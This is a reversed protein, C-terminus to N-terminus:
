SAVLQVAPAPCSCRPRPRTGGCEVCSGGETVAAVSLVQDFTDYRREAESGPRYFVQRCVPKIRERKATTWEDFVFADYTRWFFVRKPSWQRAEDHSHPRELPCVLAPDLADRLFELRDRPDDPELEVLELSDPDWPHAGAHHTKASRSAKPAFGQCLTVAQCTERIVKEARNWAPATFSLTIDRRRLQMLLNLVAPPIVNGSSRSSAVGTVEDLLVDCKEVELLIGFSDLPVWLPHPNGHEDLIRVTSVVRRGAALSPLVDNVMALSKGGGNPGVYCRIPFGRRIARAKSNRHLLM